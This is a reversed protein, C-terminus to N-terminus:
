RGKIGYKNHIDRFLKCMYEVDSSTNGKGFSVRFSSRIRQESFGMASLVYSVNKENNSSCASGQSIAIGQQQFLLALVDSRVGEIYINNIHPITNYEANLNIFPMESIGRELARKLDTAHEYYREQNTKLQKCALGFGVVLEIAETGSRLGRQQGGGVILPYFQSVNKIYLAGIGKPGYVKHASFSASDFLAESFEIKGLGQVFDCHFYIDNEKCIDSIECIPQIVGTENNVAMVFVALINKNVKAKFDEMDLLGDSRVALMEVEFLGRKEYMSVTELVSPHEIPSVLIRRKGVTARMSVNFIAANNSETAGSTFLVDGSNCNLLQVIQEKANDLLKKSSIGMAHLSSANGFHNVMVETMALRVDKDAETTAANDFYIMRMM